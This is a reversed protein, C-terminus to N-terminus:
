LQLKNFTEYMLNGSKGAFHLVCPYTNTQTNYVRGNENVLHVHSNFSEKKCNPHSQEDSICVQFIQSDHDIHILGPYNLYILILYLQDFDVHSGMGESKIPAAYITKMLQFICNFIYVKGIMGGGNPFPNNVETNFHTALEPDPFCNPEGTIIFEKNINQFNNLIDEPPSCLFADGFDTYMIIDNDDCQSIFEEIAKLKTMLGNYWTSNLMILEISHKRVMKMMPVNDIITSFHSELSTIYFMKLNRIEIALKCNKLGILNTLIYFTHKRM